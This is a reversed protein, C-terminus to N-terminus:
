SLREAFEMEDERSPSASECINQLNTFNDIFGFVRHFDGTAIAAEYLERIRETTTPRSLNGKAPNGTRRHKPLYQIHSLRISTVPRNSLSNIESITFRTPKSVHVHTSCSTDTKIKDNQLLSPAYGIETSNRKNMWRQM